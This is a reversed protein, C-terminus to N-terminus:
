TSQSRASAIRLITLSFMGVLPMVARELVAIRQEGAEDAASAAPALESDTVAAHLV